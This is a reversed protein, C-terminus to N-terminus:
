PAVPGVETAETRTVGGNADTAFVYCGIMAGDDAIVLDYSSATEGVIEAGNRLWQYTITPTGSWTGASCNLTQGVQVTGTIVPAVLLSPSTERVEKIVFTDLHYFPGVTNTFTLDADFRVRVPENNAKEDTWNFTYVGSLTDDWMQEVTAHDPHDIDANNFEIEWVRLPGSWRTNRVENGNDQTAVGIDRRKTRRAGNEIATPLWLWLHM